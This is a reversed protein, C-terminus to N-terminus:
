PPRSLNRALNWGSTAVGSIGGGPLTWHGVLFLNKIPSRPHPRRFITVPDQAWGSIAGGTNATYRQFTAPTAADQVLIHKSLGPIVAEALTILRRAINEKHEKWSGAPPVALVPAFISICHKGEPALTPDIMTATTICFCADDLALNEMAKYKKEYDFSPHVIVLEGLDQAVSKVDMEVGLYVNFGSPCVELSKLDVAFAQPLLDEGV